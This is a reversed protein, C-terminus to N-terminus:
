RYGNSPGPQGATQSLLALIVVFAVGALILKELESLGRRM